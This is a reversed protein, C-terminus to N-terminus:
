GVRSTSFMKNRFADSAEQFETLETEEDPEEALENEIEETRALAQQLEEYEPTAADMTALRAQLAAKRQQQAHDAQKQLAQFMADELQEHVETEAELGGLVPRILDLASKYEQASICAQAKVLADMAQTELGEVFDMTKLVLNMTKLVFNM